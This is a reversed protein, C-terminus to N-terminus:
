HVAQQLLGALRIAPHPIRLHECGDPVVRTPGDAEEELHGAEHPRLPIADLGDEGRDAGGAVLGHWFLPGDCERREIVRDGPRVATRTAPRSAAPAARGPPSCARLARDSM